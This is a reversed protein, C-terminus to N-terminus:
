SERILRAYVAGLRLLDHHTGREVVRGQDLVLIEDSDRVTSLRHAVLVCACGRRRLRTIIEAETEADLASTAEDLILLGPARVLARALELRQRQGGSFNRGDQEVVGHIGGPRAAIVEDLRADRLAAFVDEDPISPDWLTVNDRVTGQFLYIEQDVFAVSAALEDRGVEERPLGDLTIRGEWPEGFGAILRSVTSKGSGSGGVLAIQEGPHVEFSLERLQPPSMRDYGFMVAEFRLHGVLRHTTGASARGFVADQEATEVDRIRVLDGATDQLTPVLGALEGVPRQLGAVLLQAAVLAGMALQGEISRLGGLLLVAAASLTALFLGLASLGAVPVSVRQQETLLAAQQDGWRRFYGSEGGSAKMTEILQLGSFAISHLKAREVLQRAVAARRLRLVARVLVLNLSAVSIGALALLPDYIWLLVAYLCATVVGTIVPSVTRTLAAAIRHHAALREALDAPARHDFFGIPLRLLHRMFRASHGISVHMEAQLLQTQSIQVLSATLLITGAMLTFFSVLPPAGGATLITDAFGRTLAPVVIAFAALLLSALLAAALAPRVGGLRDRVDRWLSSRHGGPRFGPGPTLTLVVGTFGDSFEQATLVRRGRAPDNLYVVPRGRRRGSGEWVVYHNFEWFLIAPPQLRALAAPSMKKGSAVLGFTRAARLLQGATAGNRSVGCRVRLEQPEAHRGFHSLVMALSAAGCEVPQMQLITPTRM